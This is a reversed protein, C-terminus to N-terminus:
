YRDEPFDELSSRTDLHNAAGECRVALDLIKQRADPNRSQSAIGRLKRALERYRLGDTPAVITKPEVM